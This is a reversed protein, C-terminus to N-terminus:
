SIVLFHPIRGFYTDGRSHVQCSSATHLLWQRTPRTPPWSALSGPRGAGSQLRGHAEKATVSELLRHFPVWPRSDNSAGSWPRGSMHSPWSAVVQHIVLKISDTIAGPVGIFVGWSIFNVCRVRSTTIWNYLNQNVLLLVPLARDPTSLQTSYESL